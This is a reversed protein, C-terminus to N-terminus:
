TRDTVVVDVGHDRPRQVVLRRIRRVPRRTIERRLRSHRRRASRAANPNFGHSLSVNSDGLVRLKTSLTRSTSPKYM